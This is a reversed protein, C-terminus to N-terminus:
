KKDAPASPLNSRRRKLLGKTGELEGAAINAVMIAAGILAFGGSALRPPIMM